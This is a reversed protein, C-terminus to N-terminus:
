FFELPLCASNISPLPFCFARIIELACGLRLWFVHCSSGYSVHFDFFASYRRYITLVSGDSWTVQIVYVQTSFLLSSSCPFCAQLSTKTINSVLAHSKSMIKQLFYQCPFSGTKM